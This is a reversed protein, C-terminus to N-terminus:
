NLKNTPKVNVHDKKKKYSSETLLFSVVKVFLFIYIYLNLNKHM